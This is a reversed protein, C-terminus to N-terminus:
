MMSYIIGLAEGHYPKQEIGHEKSVKLIDSMLNLLTALGDKIREDGQLKWIPGIKRVDALKNKLVIRPDGYAKQLRSWM